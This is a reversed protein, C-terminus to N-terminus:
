DEEEDSSSRVSIPGNITSVHILAPSSGFEIRRNDEDWTKRANDCISARCSMPSRDSSEVLFSSQYNSPVYLTLPGNKADASLGAGEWTQGKLEISIPGNEAHIRINGSSGAIHIPGNQTTVDADGSFGHMGIPGNTAHVTLKGDVDYLSLPGNHTELDIVSAKPASILLYVTWDNDERSPGDASVEGNQVSVRIKALTVEATGNYDSAAKCATVSYTDKDWGRVQVGGNAHPRVRLTSAEAKSITHEESQMVADRDDFRIHLDSCDSVPGHNGGSMSMSHNHDWQGWGPEAPMAPASPSAPMAPLAPVAPMEPMAPMPPMEPMGPPVVTGIGTAMAPPMPPMPPAPPVISAPPMPPTPPDQANTTSALVYFGCFITASLAFLALRSKM